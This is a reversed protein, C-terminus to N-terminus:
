EPDRIEDYLAYYVSRFAATLAISRGYREATSADRTTTLLSTQAESIERLM